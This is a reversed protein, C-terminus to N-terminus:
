LLSPLFSSGVDGGIGMSFLFEDDDGGEFDDDSYADPETRPKSASADPETRPKSAPPQPLESAKRKSGVPTDTSPPAEGECHDWEEEDESM